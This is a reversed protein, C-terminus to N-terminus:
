MVVLAYFCIYAGQEHGKKIGEDLADIEYVNSDNCRVWKRDGYVNQVVDAVYHGSHMTDGFHSVVSQLGDICKKLTGENVVIFPDPDVSANNKFLFDGMAGTNVFRKLHLILVRATDDIHAVSEM